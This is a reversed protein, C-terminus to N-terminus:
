VSKSASVGHVIYHSSFICLGTLAFTLAFTYVLWVANVSVYYKLVNPDSLRILFFTMYSLFTGLTITRFLKPLTYRLDRTRLVRPMMLAILPVILVFTQSLLFSDFYVGLARITFISSLQVIFTSILIIRYINKMRYLAKPKLQKGFCVRKTLYNYGEV